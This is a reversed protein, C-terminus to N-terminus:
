PWSPALLRGGSAACALLWPSVEGIEPWRSCAAVWAGVVASVADAFGTAAPSPLVPEVGTDVLVLTFVERVVGARGSFRRLWGRVTDVARGLGAAIARAGAGSAKLVLASGIVDVVDARRLLAFVPLLVHSVGCGECRARRPRVVVSGSGERLARARAWGWPALAEGCDPCALGGDALRREVQAANAEVTLM